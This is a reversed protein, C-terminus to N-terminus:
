FRVSMIGDEICLIHDYQAYYDLIYSNAGIANNITAEFFIQSSLTNMGSMLTDNRQAFLETEQGICFANQWATSGSAQAAVVGTNALNTAVNDCVNFYTFNLASANAANDLSHLSRQLEAFVEAYGGTTNVNELYIPKSPILASGIRWNYFSFNPNIRSSVSYSTISTTDAARRPCVVLQKLSAFRAPVLYSVQGSTNAPLSSVFHRWTNGHLYIPNEPSSVSRVMNEGEDSLEVFCLEMQIDIISWAAQAGNTAVMGVTQSEFSIEVRIDDNLMGVPVMKDSGLGFVGSLIPICATYQSPATANAAPLQIGARSNMTVNTGLMSSLGSKQSGTINMDFLYSYLVNLQQVSELLNSAHFVDLRNLVSTATNDFYMANTTDNNRVTYRLYSQTPDIYTNRRGCPLYFIATDLPTFVSKNTAPISARYSRGRVSSPKLSFMVDSTLALQNPILQSTDTM